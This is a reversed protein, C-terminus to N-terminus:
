VIKEYELFRSIHRYCYYNKAGKPRENNTEVSCELGSKLLGSCKHKETLQTVTHPKKSHLKCLESGKIRTRTCPKEKKTTMTCQEANILELNYIIEVFEEKFVKYDTNNLKEKLNFKKFLDDIKEM